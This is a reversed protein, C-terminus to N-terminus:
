KVWISVLPSLYRSDEDAYRNSPQQAQISVVLFYYVVLSIMM